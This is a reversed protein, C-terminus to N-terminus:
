AVLLEFRNKNDLLKSLNMISIIGQKVLEIPNTELLM